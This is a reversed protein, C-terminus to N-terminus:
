PEDEDGPEAAPAAPASPDLVPLKAARLRENLAPVDHAKV